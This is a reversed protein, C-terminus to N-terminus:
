RAEIGHQFKIAMFGKLPSMDCKFIEYRSVVVVRFWIFWEKWGVKEMISSSDM